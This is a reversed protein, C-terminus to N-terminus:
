FPKKTPKNWKKLIAKIESVVMDIDATSNYIGLSIRATAAVKLKTHLPMACHHGARIAINKRDLLTALDHAHLASTTFSILGLRKSAVPGYITLGEIKVLQNYAYTTLTSIHQWINKLGIQNLYDITQGLAYVQALPPTGAELLWPMKKYTSSKYNVEAIMEGGSQYPQMEGFREPRVYLIGIGTPGLMKHASFVLFDPKMKKVDIPMHAVSQAADVLVKINKQHALTIIKAVPNITGLVNSIHVLSLFKVQRFLENLDTMVLEGTETIPWYKIKLGLEKALIQWPVMNAHHEMETLLIVDGKKLNHRAWSGVVLNIGETTGKTFVISKYNKAGLFTAVQGRTKEFLITAEEALKYAGRHVNANYKAYWNLEAEIVAQPKQSTAASDLYVMKKFRGSFIPFNKKNVLTKM